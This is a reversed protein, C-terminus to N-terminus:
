DNILKFKALKKGLTRNVISVEVYNCIKNNEIYHLAITYEMLSPTWKGDIYSGQSNVLYDFFLEVDNLSIDIDGKLENINLYKREKFRNILYQSNDTKGRNLSEAGTFLIESTELLSHRFAILHTRHYGKYPVYGLVNQSQRVKDNRKYWGKKIAKKKRVFDEKNTILKAGFPKDSDVLYVGIKKHKKYLEKPKITHYSVIPSYRPIFIIM